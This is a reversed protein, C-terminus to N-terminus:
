SAGYWDARTIPLENNDSRAFLVQFLQLYGSRFAASSGALYLRWMRVFRDDFMRQIKEVSREFRALWDACTRAYHMRLNEVDLVSFGGDEFLDMMERLSPAYAGPFIYKVTWLDLPCAVNRGITHILGRGLPKLVRNMMQGMGRYNEAGVHELMGVSVFADCKGTINRYDDEVYEVRQSLGEQSARHRAYALQEKSLNFARVTVGYHRAMHLALAGWGCGAEVVTEGPRLRLKRCVHDMKAVQAQELTADPHPYYACTYVCQEDLWLKYFDNGIDYHHYVSSKSASLSHQFSLWPFLRRKPRSPKVRSFGHNVATLVKILDGEVTIEKAMYGEGFGTISDFLLRRIARPTHIVIKGESPDSRGIVTGDWFAVQVDPQGIRDYVKEVFLQELSTPRRRVHAHGNTSPTPRRHHEHLIEVTTSLSVPTSEHRNETTLNEM